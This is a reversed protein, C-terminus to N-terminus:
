RDRFRGRGAQTGGRGGRQLEPLGDRLFSRHGKRHDLNAPQRDPDATNGGSRRQRKRPKTM